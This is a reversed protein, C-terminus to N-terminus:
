NARDMGGSVRQVGALACTLLLLLTRGVAGDMRGEVAGGCWAQVVGAGCVVGAGRRDSIGKWRRKGHVWSRRSYDRGLVAVDVRIASTQAIDWFV